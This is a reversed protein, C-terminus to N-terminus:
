KTVSSKEKIKNSVYFLVLTVYDIITISNVGERRLGIGYLFWM